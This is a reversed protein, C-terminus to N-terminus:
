GPITIPKGRFVCKAGAASSASVVARENLSEKGQQRIDQTSMQAQKLVLTELRDIKFSLLAIYVAATVVPVAIGLILSLIKVIQM